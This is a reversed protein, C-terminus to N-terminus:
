KKEKSRTDVIILRGSQRAVELLNNFHVRSAEARQRTAEDQRQRRNM